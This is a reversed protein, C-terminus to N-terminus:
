KKIIFLTKSWQVHVSNLEAVNTLDRDHALCKALYLLFLISFTVGVQWSNLDLLLSFGMIM